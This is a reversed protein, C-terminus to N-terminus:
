FLLSGDDSQISARKLTKRDYVKRSRHRVTRFTVAKGHARIDEERSAKRSALLYDKETIRFKKVKKMTVMNRFQVSFTESEPNKTFESQSFM